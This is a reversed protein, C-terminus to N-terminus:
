QTSIDECSASSIQSVMALLCVPRDRQVTFLEETLVVSFNFLSHEFRHGVFFFGRDLTISPQKPIVSKLVSVLQVINTIAFGM